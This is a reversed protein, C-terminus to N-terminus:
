LILAGNNKEGIKEGNESTLFPEKQDRPSNKNSIIEWKKIQSGAQAMQHDRVAM